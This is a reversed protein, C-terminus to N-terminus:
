HSRMYNKAYALAQSKTKFTKNYIESRPNITEVITHWKKDNFQDIRIAFPKRKNLYIIPTGGYGIEKKWDKMAM